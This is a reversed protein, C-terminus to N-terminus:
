NKTADAAAEIDALEAYMGHLVKAAHSLTTLYVFALTRRTLYPNNRETETDEASVPKMVASAHATLEPMVSDKLKDLVDAEGKTIPLDMPSPVGTPAHSLLDNALEHTMQMLLSARELPTLHEANEIEIM